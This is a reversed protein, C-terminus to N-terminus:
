LEPQAKWGIVLGDPLRVANTQNFVSEDPWFGGGELHLVTSQSAKIIVPIIVFGYGNARAKVQYKGAPLGVPVVDQLITGTNNHIRQQLQGDEFFIEYDSYEPRYPDRANFDANRRYASYVVLTGNTSVSSTMQFPPLMAPGVPDLVLSNPSRGTVCGSLLAATLLALLTASLKM